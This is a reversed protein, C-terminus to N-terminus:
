VIRIKVNKEMAISEINCDRLWQGAKHLDETFTGFRRVTESSRDEPVAIYIATAGIDIGAANPQIVHLQKVTTQKKKRKAM